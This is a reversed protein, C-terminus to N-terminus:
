FSHYYRIALTESGPNPSRLRANSKHDLALSVRSTDNLEYGLGILTRFQVKGNLPTGDTGKTYFGPMFSGEIFWPSDILKWQASLGAGIFIDRDNDIQAAVAYSYAAQRGEFFPSSHYEAVIAPASTDTHDLVDDLGLGLVVEGSYAASTSLVFFLATTLYQM